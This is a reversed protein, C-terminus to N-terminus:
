LLILYYIGIMVIGLILAILNQKLFRLILVLILTITSILFYTRYPANMELKLEKSILPNDLNLNNSLIESLASLILIIMFILVILSITKIERKKNLTSNFELIKNM